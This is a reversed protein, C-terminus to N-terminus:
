YKILLYVNYFYIFISSFYCDQWDFIERMSNEITVKMSVLPIVTHITTTAQQPEQVSDHAKFGTKSILALTALNYKTLM